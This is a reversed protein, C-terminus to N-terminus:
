FDTARGGYTWEGQAGWSLPEKKPGGKEGTLPNTDGEFDPSPKTRADPHVTNELLLDEERLNSVFDMKGMSGDQTPIKPASTLPKSFNQASLPAQAAKVLEEFEKQDKSPLPPPGPRQIFGSANDTQRIASSILTRKHAIIKSVPSSHFRLM